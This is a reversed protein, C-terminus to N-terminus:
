HRFLVVAMLLVFLAIVEAALNLDVHIERGFAHMSVPLIGNPDSFAGGYNGRSAFAALCSVM